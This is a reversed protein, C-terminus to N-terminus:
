ERKRLVFFLVVLLAAGGLIWWLMGSGPATKVIGEVHPAITVDSFDDGVHSTATSEPM